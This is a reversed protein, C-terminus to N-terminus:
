RHCFYHEDPEMKFNYDSYDRTIRHIEDEVCKDYYIIFTDDSKRYVVRGRPFYDYNVETRNDLYKLYRYRNWVDFHSKPYILFDGQQEAESLPCGDFTFNGQVFFFVGVYLNEKPMVPQEYDPNKFTEYDKILKDYVESNWENDETIGHAGLINVLEDKTCVEGILPSWEECCTCFRGADSLEHDTLFMCDDWGNHDEYAFVKGM